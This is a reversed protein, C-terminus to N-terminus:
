VAASGRGLTSERMGGWAVLPDLVTGNACLGADAPQMLSPLFEARRLRFHTMSAQHNGTREAGAMTPGPKSRMTDVVAPRTRRNENGGRKWVMKALSLVRPEDLSLNDTQIVARYNWFESVATEGKSV